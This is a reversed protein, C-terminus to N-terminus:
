ALHHSMSGDQAQSLAALALTIHDSSGGAVDFQDSDAERSSVVLSGSRARGATMPEAPSSPAERSSNGLRDGDERKPSRSTQGSAHHTKNQRRSGARAADGGPPNSRVSCPSDLGHLHFPSSLPCAQKAKVARSCQADRVPPAYSVVYGHLSVREPCVCASSSTHTLHGQTCFASMCM